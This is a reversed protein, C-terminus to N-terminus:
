HIDDAEQFAKKLVEISFGPSKAAKLIPAEKKIVLEVAKPVEALKDRPIIAAGHRDLHIYDGPKFKQGFIEVETDYDVVHVFAHSPSISGAFLPFWPDTVDQDRMSGNTIAASIGLGKHVAVNVEGWMAGLGPPDDLDQIVCVAPKPAAAIYEYYGIRTKKAEAAPRTSPARSRIRATVVIGAIPSLSPRSPIVMPHTFGDARRGGLVFELANCLTPTDFRALEKLIAAVKPDTEKVKM